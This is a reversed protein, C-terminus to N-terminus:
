RQAKLTYSIGRSIIKRSYVDIIAALYLFGKKMPINTIDTSWDQHPREIVLNRLLYPKLYDALGLRFLYKQRYIAFYDMIGMM